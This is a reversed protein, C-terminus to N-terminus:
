GVKGFSCAEIGSVVSGGALALFSVSRPFPFRKKRVM